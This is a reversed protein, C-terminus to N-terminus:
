LTFPIATTADPVRFALRTPGALLAAVMGPQAPVEDPTESTAQWAEAPEPPTRPKLAPATELYAREAVNQPAYDAGYGPTAVVYAPLGAIQRVLDGQSNRVLNFFDFRLALMDDRRLVSATLSPTAALISRAEATRTLPYVVLSAGATAATAKLLDRRTLAFRRVLTGLSEVVEQEAEPALDGRAVAARVIRLLDRKTAIQVRVSSAM